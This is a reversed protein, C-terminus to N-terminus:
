SYTGPASSITYPDLTYTYVLTPTAEAVVSYTSNTTPTLFFTSFLEGTALGTTPFLMALGNTNEGGTFSGYGAFSLNGNRTAIDANTYGWRTHISGSLTTGLITSWLATGTTDIATVSVGYGPLALYLVENSDLTAYGGGVSYYGGNPQALAKCWVTNGSIPDLKFISITSGTSASYNSSTVYTGSAGTKISSVTIATSSDIYVGAQWLLTGMPNIKLINSFDPALSGTATEIALYVNGSTDVCTGKIITTYYISSSIKYVWEISGSNSVKIIPTNGLTDPDGALVASDDPCVILTSLRAGYTTDLGVQWIISGDVPSMKLLTYTPYGCFTVLINDQSDVVVSDGFGGGFTTYTNIWIVNGFPDYKVICPAGEFGGVAISNSQSDICVSSFSTNAYLATGAIISGWVQRDRTLDTFQITHGKMTGVTAGDLVLQAEGNAGTDTITLSSNGQYIKNERYAMRNTLAQAQANMPGGPGGLAVTTTELEPIVDNSPIPTLNAM